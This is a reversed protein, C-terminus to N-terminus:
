FPLVLYSNMKLLLIFVLGALIEKNDHSFKISFACFRSDEPSSPLILDYIFLNNKVLNVSIVSFPALFIELKVLM